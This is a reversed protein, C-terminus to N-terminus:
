IISPDFVLLVTAHRMVGGNRYDFPVTITRGTFTGNLITLGEGGRRPDPVFRLERGARSWTGYVIMRQLPEQSTLVGKPALTQRYRLAARFEGSARLTVVLEDFEILYRTGHDDDAFDKVPLRKGDLRSSVYTGIAPATDTAARAPQAARASQRVPVVDPQAARESRLVPAADSQAM